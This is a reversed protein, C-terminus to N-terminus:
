VPAGWVVDKHAFVADQYLAGEVHKEAETEPVRLKRYGLGLLMTETKQQLSEIVIINIRTRKWDIGELVKHEHGEVDLSLLDINHMGSADIARSTPVCTLEIRPSSKMIQSNKNTTSIGSLGLYLVFSM